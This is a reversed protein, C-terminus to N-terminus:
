RKLSESKHMNVDKNRLITDSSMHVHIYVFFSCKISKENNKAGVFIHLIQFHTFFIDVVEVRVKFGKKGPIKFYLVISSLKIYM